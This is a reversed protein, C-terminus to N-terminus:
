RIPSGLKDDDQISVALEKLLEDDETLSPVTAGTAGDQLLGEVDNYLAHVSSSSFRSRRRKHCSTEESGPPRATVRAQDLSPPDGSTSPVATPLTAYIKEMFGVMSGLQENISAIPDCTAQNEHVTDMPETPASDQDPHGSM